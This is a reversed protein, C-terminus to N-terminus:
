LGLNKREEELRKRKAKAAARNDAQMKAREERLCKSVQAKVDNCGGSAKHMFGQAHCAELAAIIEECTAWRM